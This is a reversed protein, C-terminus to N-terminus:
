GPLVAPAACPRNRFTGIPLGADWARTSSAPVDRKVATRIEKLKIARNLDALGRSLAIYDSRPMGEGLRSRARKLAALHKGSQWSQESEAIAETAVQELQGLIARLEEHPPFDGPIQLLAGYVQMVGVLLVELWFEPTTAPGGL